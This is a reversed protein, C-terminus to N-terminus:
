VLGCQQMNLHGYPDNADEENGGAVSGITEKIWPLVYNVKSYIEPAWNLCDATGYSCVGIIDQRGEDNRFFMGGGSDGHCPAGDARFCMKPGGVEVRGNGWSWQTQCEEQSIVNVNLEQLYRSSSGSGGGSTKGWGVVTATEGVYSTNASSPLCAPWLEGRELEPYKKLRLLAIDFKHNERNYDPHINIQDISDTQFFYYFYRARKSKGMVVRLDVPRDENHICHAATLLWRTSVLTAGCYTTTRLLGGLHRIWSLFGKKSEEKVLGVHWPYEGDEATEGSVLRAARPLQDQGSAGGSFLVVVALLVVVTVSLQLRM